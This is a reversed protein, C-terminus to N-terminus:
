SFFFLIVKQFWTGLPYSWFAHPIIILGQIHLQLATGLHIESNSHALSKQAGGTKQRNSRSHRHYNDEQGAVM